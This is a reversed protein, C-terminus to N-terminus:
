GQTETFAEKAEAVTVSPKAMAEYIERMQSQFRLEKIDGYSENRFMRLGQETLAKITLSAAWLAAMSQDDGRLTHMMESEAPSLPKYYVRFPFGAPQVWQMGISASLKQLESLHNM